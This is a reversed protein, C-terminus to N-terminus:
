YAHPQLADHDIRDVFLVGSAATHVSMTRIRTRTELDTYTRSVMADARGELALLNSVFYPRWSWNSGRYGSQRRWAGGRGERVYNSSLQQGDERCLYVRICSDDLLPLLQEILRDALEAADAGLRDADAAPSAVAEAHVAGVQRKLRGAARRWRREVALLSMRHAELEEEILGAFEGAARFQPEAPAFLYGQAYRAGIEIARRLDERTEIGEILLSAGIQEALTSFSRLAGFYGYDSASQKMMHIDVKLLSPAIQAIRDANSFGKGVDDIAIQCGHARYVDIIERLVQMSGLFAEETVEIVIRSPEIGYKHILQLTLLEGTEQYQEYMWSPKLNLFLQPREGDGGARAAQALAQERIIRDIELQDGADIRPDTFFPGLTRYGGDVRQRGLVEYGVIRRTDLALVPQFCPALTSKDPKSPLPQNSEENYM